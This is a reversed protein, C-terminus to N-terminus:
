ILYKYFRYLAYKKIDKNRLNIKNGLMTIISWNYKEYDICIKIANEDTHKSEAILWDVYSNIWLKLLYSHNIKKKVIRYKM